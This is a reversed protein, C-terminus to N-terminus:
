LLGGSDPSTCSYFCNSKKAKWGATTLSLHLLVPHMFANVLETSRRTSHLLVNPVDQGYGQCPGYPATCSVKDPDRASVVIHNQSWEYEKCVDWLIRESHFKNKAPSKGQLIQLSCEQDVFERCTLRGDKHWEHILLHGYFVTM